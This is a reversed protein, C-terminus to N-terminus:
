PKSGEADPTQTAKPDPTKDGSNQKIQSPELNAHIKLSKESLVYIRQHFAQRDMASVTLDYAGGPLWMSKLRFASGAYAGDIYVDADKPEATLKIEGKDSSYALNPLFAPYGPWFPGWALSAYPWGFPYYPFPGYPGYPYFYPSSFHSYGAGLTMGGFRFNTHHKKKPTDKTTRQAPLPAQEKSAAGQEDIPSKQQSAAPAPTPPLQSQKEQLQQQPKRSAAQAPVHSLFAASLFPYAALIAVLFLTRNRM